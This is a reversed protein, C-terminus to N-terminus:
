NNEQGRIGALYEGDYDDEDDPTSALVSVGAYVYQGKNVNIEKIMAKPIFVDCQSGFRIMGIREGRGVFDGPAAWSVIRDVWSDAIQVVYLTGEDSEIGTTLRENTRQYEHDETIPRGSVIIEYFPRLMSFNPGVKFHIRSKITGEIPARNVHVSFPTMFIGILVGEHGAFTTEKKIESLPIDRQKKTAVPVQGSEIHKIYLVYGDAPSLIGNEDPSWRIPDRLFYGRWCLYGLFLLAVATAAWVIWTVKEGGFFECDV